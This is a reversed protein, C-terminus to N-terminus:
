ALASESVPAPPPRPLVSSEAHRVDVETAMAKALWRREAILPWWGYLLVEAPRWMAVWGMITLGEGVIDKAPGLPLKATLEALTLFLALVVVGLIALSRGNRFNDRIKATVSDREYEFYAAIAERLVAAPIRPEGPDSFHLVVKIPRRLPLEKISALIHEAAGPDLDRERFPAPDRLDFLQRASKLRVDICSKGEEVRYRSRKPM